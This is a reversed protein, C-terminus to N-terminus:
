IWNTNYIWSQFISILAIYSLNLVEPLLYTPQHCKVIGKQQHRNTALMVLPTAVMVLSTAVMVLTTALMVLSTAVMVLSTAVMVLSTAVKKNERICINTFLFHVYWNSECPVWTDLSGEWSFLLRVFHIPNGRSHRVTQFDFAERVIQSSCFAHFYSLTAFVFHACCPRLLIRLAPYGFHLTISKCMIHALSFMNQLRAVEEKFRTFPFIFYYIKWM